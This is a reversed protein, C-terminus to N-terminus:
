RFGNKIGREIEMAILMHYGPIMSITKILFLSVSQQIFQEMWITLIFQWIAETDIGLDNDDNRDYDDYEKQTEYFEEDM